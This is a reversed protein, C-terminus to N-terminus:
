DDSKRAAKEAIGSIGIRGALIESIENPHIDFHAQLLTMHFLLDAMEEKLAARRKDSKPKEDVRIAEIVTETAEEGIKQAIKEAGKKFMKAAYSNKPDAVKRTILTDYIQNIIPDSM